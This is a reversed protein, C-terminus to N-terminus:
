TSLDSARLNQLLGVLEDADARILSALTSQTPTCVLTQGEDILSSLEGSLDRLVVLSALFETLALSTFSQGLAVASQDVSAKVYEPLWGSSVEDLSALAAETTEKFLTTLSVCRGITQAANLFNCGLFLSEYGEIIKSANQHSISCLPVGFAQLHKSLASEVETKGEIVALAKISGTCLDLAAIVSSQPVKRDVRSMCKGLLVMMELDFSWDRWPQGKTSPNAILLEAVRRFVLGKLEIRSAGELQAIQSRLGQSDVIM